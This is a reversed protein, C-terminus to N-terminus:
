RQSGCGPTTTTEWSCCPEHIEPDRDLGLLRGTAGIERAVLSAHGAGGVTGDVVVLGPTLALNELTERPLVPTHVVGQGADDEGQGEGPPDPTM